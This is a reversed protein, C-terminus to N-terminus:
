FLPQKYSFAVVSIGRVQIPLNGRSEEVSIEKKEKRETSSNSSLAQAKLAPVIAQAM